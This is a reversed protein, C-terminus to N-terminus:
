IGISAELKHVQAETQLEAIKAHLGAQTADHSQRAAELEQKMKDVAANKDADAQKLAKQAGGLEVIREDLEQKLARQAGVLEVIREHLKQETEDSEAQAKKLKEQVDALEGIKAQLSEECQARKGREGKLEEKVSQRKILEIEPPECMLDAGGVGDDLRLSLQSLMEKDLEM